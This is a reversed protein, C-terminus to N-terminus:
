LKVPQCLNEESAATRGCLQCMFQPNQVMAKYEQKNSLYLGYSVFYCLHKKHQSNACLSNDKPYEENM